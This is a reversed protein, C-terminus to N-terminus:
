QVAGDAPFHWPDPTPPQPKMAIISFMAGHPRRRRRVTRSSTWRDAMLSGGLQKVREVEADTDTVTFYVM